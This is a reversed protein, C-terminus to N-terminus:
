KGANNGTKKLFVAKMIAKYVPTGTRDARTASGSVSDIMRIDGETDVNMGWGTNVPSTNMLQDDREEGSKVQEYLIIMVADAGKDKAKHVLKKELDQQSGGENAPASAVAHGMLEYGDPVGKQKKVIEVSTTPAYTKGDYSVSTCGQAVALTIVIAALLAPRLLSNM